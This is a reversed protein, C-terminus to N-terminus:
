WSFLKRVSMRCGVCTIYRYAFWGDPNWYSIGSLAITSIWSLPNEEVEEQDQNEEQALDEEDGVEQDCVVFRVKAEKNLVGTLFRQLTTTLRNTLWDRGYTNICGVVFTDDSFEMLHTPKVWTSFTARSMDLELNAVAAQWAKEPSFEVVANM